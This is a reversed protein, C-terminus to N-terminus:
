KLLVALLAGIGLSLNLGILVKIWLGDKRQRMKLLEVQQQTIQLLQRSEKFEDKMERSLDGLRNQLNQVGLNIASINYDIKDLREPFNIADIKAILATAAEVLYRYEVIETEVVTKLNKLTENLETEAKTVFDTLSKRLQVLHETSNQKVEELTGSAQDRIDSVAGQATTATQNVADKCVGATTKVQQDVEKVIATLDEQVKKLSETALENIAEFKTNVLIAIGTAKDVVEIAPILKDLETRLEQLTTTTNM